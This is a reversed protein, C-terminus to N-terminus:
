HTKRKHAFFFLNAFVRLTSRCELLHRQVSPSFTFTSEESTKNNEESQKEFCSIFIIRIPCRIDTPAPVRLQYHHEFM